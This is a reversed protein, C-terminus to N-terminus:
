GKASPPILYTESALKNKKDMDKDVKFYLLAKRGEIIHRELSIQACLSADCSQLVIKEAKVCYRQANNIHEIKATTELKGYCSLEKEVTMLGWYKRRLLSSDLYIKKAEVKLFKERASKLNAGSKDPDRLLDWAKDLNHKM